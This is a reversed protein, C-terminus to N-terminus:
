GYDRENRDQHLTLRAGPEYRNVLCADPRFGEFRAAKAAEHALRSFLEPMAPWPQKSVPDHTTYRYGAHDTVWGLAGCNTMAASMRYGGPTVMHRFPAAAELVALVPLVDDVYPLAFQRLVCACKGLPKVNPWQLTVFSDCTNMDQLHTA